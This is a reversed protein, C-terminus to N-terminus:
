RNKLCKNAQDILRALVKVKSMDPPRYDSIIEFFMRVQEDESLSGATLDKGLFHLSASVPDSVRKKRQLLEVEKATLGFNGSPDTFDIWGDPIIKLIGCLVWNSLKLAEASSKAAPSAQGQAPVSGIVAPAKRCQTAAM